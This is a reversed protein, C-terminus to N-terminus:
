SMMYYISIGGERGRGRGEERQGDIWRDMMRGRGRKKEGERERM